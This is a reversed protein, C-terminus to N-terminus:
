QSHHNNCQKIKSEYSYDKQTPYHSNATNYSYDKTPPIHTPYQKKARSSSLSLTPVTFNSNM